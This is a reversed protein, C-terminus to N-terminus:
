ISKTSDIVNPHRNEKDQGLHAPDEPDQFELSCSSTNAFCILPYEKLLPQPGYFIEPFQGQAWAQNRTM